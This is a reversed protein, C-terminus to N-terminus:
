RVALMEDLARVAQAAALRAAPDHRLMAGILERLRPDFACDAPFRLPAALAAAAGLNSDAADSFPHELYALRYLVCGLAWVDAPAGLERAGAEAAARLDLLEPARYALTTVADLADQAAALSRRGATTASATALALPRRMASGFDCLKLAANFAGMPDAEVLLVNEAKIDLHVVPPSHAHLYAVADCLGRVARLLEAEGIRHRGRAALAEPLRGGRCLETVILLEACSRAPVPPRIGEGEFRIIHAHSLSALLRGEDRPAITPRGDDDDDDRLVIRKLAYCAGTAADVRLEVSAFSGEAIRERYALKRGEVVVPALADDKQGLCASLVSGMFDAHVKRM